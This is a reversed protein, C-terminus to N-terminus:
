GLGMLEEVGTLYIQKRKRDVKRVYQTTAPVSWTEGNRLFWWRDPGAPLNEVGSFSGVELGADDVGVFGQLENPSFTSEDEQIEVQLFLPTRQLPKVAEPSEVGTLRLRWGKPLRKAEILTQERSSDATGLRLISGPEIPADPMANGTVFFGGDLGHSKGIWGIEIWAM